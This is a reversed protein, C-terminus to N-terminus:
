ASNRSKWLIQEMYEKSLMGPDEDPQLTIKFTLFNDAELLYEIRDAARRGPADGDMMITVKTIGLKNLLEVKEKNFNNAGFICLVDRVGNEWLNLTDYMGEVLIAHNGKEIKDVPFLVDSVRIADPKRTYKPVSEDSHRRRADLFKLRNFQFVPITVYDELEYETTTFAMFERLTQKGIGNFDWSVMNTAKPMRINDANKITQLKRKLKHIKYEQKSEIHIKQTIGISTLFKTIGGSFGCSFCYYIQKELNFTLSPHNDEHEGSTCQILIETPNNTKKYKIGKQHLIDLLDL